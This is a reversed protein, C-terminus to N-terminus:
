AIVVDVDNGINANEIETITVSVGATYTAELTLPSMGQQILSLTNDGDVVTMSQAIPAVEAFETDLPYVLIVPTGAAYQTALFAKWSALDTITNDWGVTLAIFPTTTNSIIIYPTTRSAVSIKNWATPIFHSCIFPATDTNPIGKILNNLVLRAPTNATGAFTWDETGNFVMVGIKHTTAGTIIEQVDKYTNVAFLNNATATQYSTTFDGTGANAYFVGNVKDYMGLEGDSRRRVPIFDRVLTSGNWIKCYYIKGATLNSISDATNIGFLAMNYGCTFTEEDNASQAVGDITNYRGDKIVIYNTDAVVGAGSQQVNGSQYDFRIRGGVNAWVAFANRSSGSSQNRAGVLCQAASIGAVSFMAQIKTNSDPKFGTDIYAGTSGTTTSELYPVEDYANDYSAGFMALTENDGASEIVEIAEDIGGGEVFDAGMQFVFYDKKATFSVIQGDQVVGAYWDVLQQGSPTSTASQGYRLFTGLGLIKKNILMTYKKGVTIPIVAGAGRDNSSYWKGNTTNIYIGQGTQSTPNTIVTWNTHDLVSIKGNNCYIDMPNSTTPTLSSGATLSGDSAIVFTDSIRDYFGVANDSNRTAPVYDLALVGNKWLKAGYVKCGAALRNAQQGSGSGAPAENGYICMNTTARNLQTPDYTGTSTNEVDGDLDKVYWSMNGDACDFVFRMKHGTRNVRTLGNSVTVGDVGPSALLTNGSTAGSIGTINANGLSTNVKDRAQFLYFSGTVATATIDLKFNDDNGIHIATKVMTSAANEVYEVATYGSPVGGQETGGFAKLSTLSDAVAGVLSLPPIGSVVVTRQYPNPVIMVRKVNQGPTVSNVKIVRWTQGVTNDVPLAVEFVQEVVWGQGVAAAADIDAQTVPLVRQINMALDGNMRLDSEQMALIRKAM